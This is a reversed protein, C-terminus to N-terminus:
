RVDQTNLFRRAPLNLELEKDRFIQRIGVSLREILNKQAIGACSLLQSHKVFRTGYGARGESKVRVNCIQDVWPHAIDIAIRYQVFVLERSCREDHVKCKALALELENDPMRFRIEDIM